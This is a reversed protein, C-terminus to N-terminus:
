YKPHLVMSSTRPQHEVSAPLPLGGKNTGQRSFEIFNAYTPQLKIANEEVVEM